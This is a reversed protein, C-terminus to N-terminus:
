ERWPSGWTGAFVFEDLEKRHRARAERERLGEDAAAPDGHRGVAVCTTVTFHAPVELREALLDHDFGAFQHAHLGMAVAQVTLHAVAQGLDYTAYDTYAPKEVEPDDGTQTLNVLVASANPVWGRNGRSLAEMVVDHASSGRRAVLFAWPQSNGASPAWRAASLLTELDTDTLRHTPDFISPSWRDRLVPTLDCAPM